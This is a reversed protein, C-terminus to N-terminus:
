KTFCKKTEWFTLCVNQIHHYMSTTGASLLNPCSSWGPSCTLELGLQVIYCSGAELVFGFLVVGCLNFMCRRHSGTIRSKPVKNLILLHVHGCLCQETINRTTSKCCKWSLFLVFRRWSSVSYVSQLTNRCYLIIWCLFFLSNNCAVHTIVFVYQSFCGPM